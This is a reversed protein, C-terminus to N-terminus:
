PPHIANLGFAATRGQRTKLVLYNSAMRIITGSLAYQGMDSTVTMGPKLTKRWQPLPNHPM